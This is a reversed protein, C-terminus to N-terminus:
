VGSYSSARRRLIVNVGHRPRLTVSPMLELDFDSVSGVEFRRVITALSLSAELMAFHNGVCIRPGGGFPFYAFKPLRDALGDLWREPRFSLPEHFWRGDRHIAWQPMLVQAGRPVVWGAVEVDRLTERGIIYAPPYLRMSERVVADLYRLSPLDGLNPDREDLVRDLEEHLKSQVEPHQGLLYLAYSLALATTEHGALFMTAVEDRLQTDTMATGDDDRAALLRGLLDDGEQATRRRDSLLGYLIADLQDVAGTMREESRVFMSRPLLRRWTLYIHQFHEMMTEVIPAVTKLDPIEADGFLTNLLIDLTLAMMDGHVDREGDGVDELRAATREVMTQAFREIHRRTFSPAAIRRQRRWFRGESTLLGRGLFRSLEHTLADKMYSHHQGVLVSAIDDPWGLVFIEEAGILYWAVDGHEHLYEEFRRLPDSQFSLGAGLVPYNTPGDPRAAPDGIGVAGRRAPQAPTSVLRSRVPTEVGTRGANRRSNWTRGRSRLGHDATWM